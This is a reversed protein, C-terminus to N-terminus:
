DSGSRPPCAKWKGARIHATTELFDPLKGADLERQRLERAKLLELRQANFNRHLRALFRLADLTLIQSYEATVDGHVQIGEALLSKNIYEAGTYAGALAM